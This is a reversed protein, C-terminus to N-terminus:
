EEATGAPPTIRTVPAVPGVSLVADEGLPSPATCNFIYEGRAADICVADVVMGIKGGSDGAGGAQDAYVSDGPALADIGRARAALMRQKVRGRHRLRAIIEQGPYCGKTFSIGGIRDLNIFQPIFEEATAPYVQPIGSLIDSLRWMADTNAPAVEISQMAPAEGIILRRPVIGAVEACVINGNRLASAGVEPANIAGWRTLERMGIDVKARLVFMRLRKVLSDALAAPALLWWKGRLRLVRIVALVRGKPSCYANLQCGAPGANAADDLQVIADIDNSFQGQLFERADDGAVEIVGLSDLAVVAGGDGIRDALAQAPTIISDPM